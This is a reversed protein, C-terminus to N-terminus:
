LDPVAMYPLPTNGTSEMNLFRVWSRGTTDRQSLTTMIADVMTLWFLLSALLPKQM